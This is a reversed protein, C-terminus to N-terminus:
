PQRLAELVARVSKRADEAAAANYGVTPGKAVCPDAHTFAAGTTSNVVMGDDRERLQCARTTQAQKLVTPERLDRWMFVHHAAPYTKISVDAGVMRLRKVHEECPRAPAYDDAAGHFIRLPVPMVDTDWRYRTGCNPYFAIHAAFRATGTTLLDHMRRLSAYLAADGGRSFGMLVIRSPDIAPHERLVRLAAYADVIANLRALRDQDAITGRIGRASFSDIVFSAIGMAALEDRWQTVYPFVGASGHLLVVVPMRGEPELPVTLEGGLIAPVGRDMHGALLDADSITRSEFPILEVRAQAAATGTVLCAMWAALMRWAM